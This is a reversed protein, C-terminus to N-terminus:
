MEPYQFQHTLTFWFGFLVLSPHHTYIPFVKGNSESGVMWGHYIVVM